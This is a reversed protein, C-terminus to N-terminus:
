GGNIRNGMGEDRVKPDGNKYTVTNNIGFVTLDDDVQDLTITNDAGDVRVASCAGVVRLTNNSGTIRLTKGAGCDVDTRTGFSGFGIDAAELPQSRDCGALVLAAVLLAAVLLAHLRTPM